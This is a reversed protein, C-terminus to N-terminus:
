NAVVANTEVITPPVNVGSASAVLLPLSLNVLSKPPVASKGVTFLTPPTLEVVIAVNGVETAEIVALRVVKVFESDDFVVEFVVAIADLVSLIVANNVSKANFAVMFEGDKVPVGVTGDGAAFEFLM